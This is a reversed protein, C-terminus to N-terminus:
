SANELKYNELEASLFHWSEPDHNVLRTITDENMRLIKDRVTGVTNDLLYKLRNGAKQAESYELPRKNPEAVRWIEPAPSEPQDAPQPEPQAATAAADAGELTAEDAQQNQEIIEGTAPDFDAVSEGAMADLKSPKAENSATERPTVDRMPQQTELEEVTQYGLLVEPFYLRQLMSASRYRLMQEPMSQYKKNSTWGEAKAMAMDATAAVAEGTETLTAKATVSLNDGKGSVDWTIRGKILGSSNIRAILYTTKWGPTGSVVYMNQMVTMPDEQMRQAVHLAVFCDAPKGQLHKPILQTSAFLQAGRYLQNFLSSNLIPSSKAYPTLEDSM